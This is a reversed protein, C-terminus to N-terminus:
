VEILEKLHHIFDGGDSAANIHDFYHYWGSNSIAELLTDRLEPSSFRWIGVFQHPSACTIEARTQSLALIEIGAAALNAMGAGIGELFIHRQDRTLALWAPKPSYLEILYCSM